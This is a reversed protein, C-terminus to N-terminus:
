FPMLFATTSFMALYSVHMFQQSFCHTRSLLKISSWIKFNDQMIQSSYWFFQPRFYLDTLSQCHYHYSPKQHWQQRSKMMQCEVSCYLYCRRDSNRLYRHNQWMNPLIIKLSHICHDIHSFYYSMCWMKWDWLILQANFAACQVILWTVLNREGWNTVFDCSNTM